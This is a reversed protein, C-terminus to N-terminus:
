AFSGAISTAEDEVTSLIQLAAAPDADLVSCLSAVRGEAEPKRVTRAYGHFELTADVLAVALVVPEDRIADVPEHHRTIAGVLEDPLGWRERVLGGVTQHDVGLIRQENVPDLATAPAAQIEQSARAYFDSLAIRGVDHLLGAVFLEDAVPRLSPVVRQLGVCALGSALSYTFVGNPAFTPVSEVKAMTNRLGAAMVLNAVTRFGLTMVARRVDVVEGSRAYFPSNAMKLVRTTLSADSAIREELRRIDADDDRLERMLEHLLAPLAPLRRIATDIEATTPRLDARVDAVPPRSSGPTKTARPVYDEYRLKAM